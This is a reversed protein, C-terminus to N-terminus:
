WWRRDRRSRKGDVGFVPHRASGAGRRYYGNGRRRDTGRFFGDDGYYRGRRRRDDDDWWDRRVQRRYQRRDRRVDRRQARLIRAEERTILGSRVGDRIRRQGFAEASFGFALVLAGLMLLKKM